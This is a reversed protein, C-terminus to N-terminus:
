LPTQHHFGVYLARLKEPLANWYIASKEASVQWFLNEVFSVDICKRIDEDGVSFKASISEFLGIYEGVPAGKRMEANIANALAHFWTYSYFESETDDDWQRAYEIDAKASIAPYQEKISTCFEDLQKSMEIVGVNM